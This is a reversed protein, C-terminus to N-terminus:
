QQECKNQLSNVLIQRTLRVFESLHNKMSTNQMKEEVNQAPPIKRHYEVTYLAM